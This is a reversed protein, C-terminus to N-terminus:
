KKSESEDRVKRIKEAINHIMGDSFGQERAWKTMPELWGPYIFDAEVKWHETKTKKSRVGFLSGPDEIKEVKVTVNSVSVKYKTKLKKVKIETISGPHNTLAVM